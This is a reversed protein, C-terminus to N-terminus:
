WLGGCIRGEYRRLWRSETEVVDDCVCRSKNPFCGYPISPLAQNLGGYCGDDGVAGGARDGGESRM